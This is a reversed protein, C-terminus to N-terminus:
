SRNQVITQSDFWPLLLVLVAPVSILVTADAVLKAGPERRVLKQMEMADWLEFGRRGPSIQRFAYQQDDLTTTYRLRPSAGEAFKLPTSLRFVENRDADVVPYVIQNPLTKDKRAALTRYRRGALTEVHARPSFFGKLVVTGAQPSLYRERLIPLTGQLEFTVRTDEALYELSM